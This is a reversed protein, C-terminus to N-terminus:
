EFCARATEYLAKTMRVVVQKFQGDENVVQATPPDKEESLEVKYSKQKYMGLKNQGWAPNGYFFYLVTAGVKDAKESKWFYEGCRVDEKFLQKGPVTKLIVNEKDPAYDQAACCYVAAALCGLIRFRVSPEVGATHPSNGM